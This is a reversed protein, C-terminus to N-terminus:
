RKNVWQRRNNANIKKVLTTRARGTATSGARAKSASRQGHKRNSRATPASAVAEAGFMPRARSLIHAFIVTTPMERHAIELWSRYHTPCYHCVRLPPPVNANAGGSDAPAPVAKWRSTGNENQQKGCYRCQPPPPKPQVAMAAKAAERGHLMAFDCKMCCPEAGFRASPSLKALCGCGVCLAYWDGFVRVARGLVPVRVLPVDGCAM